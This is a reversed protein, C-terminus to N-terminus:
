RRPLRPKPRAPWGADWRRRGNRRGGGSARGAAAAADSLASEDHILPPLPDAAAAAPSPRRRPSGRSTAQECPAAVVRRPPEAPSVPTLKAEAVASEDRKVRGPRPDPSRHPGFAEIRALSRAAMPHGHAAAVRYLRAARSADPPVGAGREVRIALQFLLDTSSQLFLPDILKFANSNTEYFKRQPDVASRQIVRQSSESLNIEKLDAATVCTLLQSVTVFERTLTTFAEEKTRNSLFDLDDLFQKMCM